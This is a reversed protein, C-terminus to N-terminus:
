KGWNRSCRQSTYIFRYFEILRYENLLRKLETRYEKFSNFDKENLEDVTEVGENTKINLYAM